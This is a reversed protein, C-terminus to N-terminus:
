RPLWRRPLQRTWCLHDSIALPQFRDALQKLKSLYRRDLPDTGGLNLSVGHFAIPYHSRAAELVELPQGGRVMFNETIVELWDVPIAGRRADDYFPPRLGIACSPGTSTVTSQAASRAAHPIM